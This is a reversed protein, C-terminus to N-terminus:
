SNDSASGVMLSTSASGQGTTCMRIDEPAVGRLHQTHCPRGVVSATQVRGELVKGNSGEVPVTVEESLQSVLTESVSRRGHHATGGHVDRRGRGDM